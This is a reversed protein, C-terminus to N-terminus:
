HSDKEGCEFHPGAPLQLKKDALGGGWRMQSMQRRGRFEKSCPGRLGRDWGRGKGIEEVLKVGCTATHLKKEALREWRM